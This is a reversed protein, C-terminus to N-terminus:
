FHHFSILNVDVFANGVLFEAFIVHLAPFLQRYEQTTLTGAFNGFSQQIKNCAYQSICWTEMAVKWPLLSLEYSVHIFVTGLALCSSLQHTCDANSKEKHSLDVIPHSATVNNRFTKGPVRSFPFFRSLHFFITQLWRGGDTRNGIAPFLGNVIALRAPLPQTDSECLKM